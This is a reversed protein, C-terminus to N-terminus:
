GLITPRSRMMRATGILVPAGVLAMLAFSIHDGLHSDWYFITLANALMAGIAGVLMNGALGLDSHMSREALAGIIAGVLAAVLWGM